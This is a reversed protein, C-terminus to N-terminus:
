ALAGYVKEAADRLHSWEEDNATAMEQWDPDNLVLNLVDTLIEAEPRSLFVATTDTM